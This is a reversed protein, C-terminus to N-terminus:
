QSVPMQSTATLPFTITNFTILHQANFSPVKIQYNYTIVVKTDKKSPVSTDSPFSVVVNSAALGLMPADNIAIQQIAAEQTSVGSGSGEGHVSAYRAADHAASCVTNYALVVSAMQTIAFTALLLVSVLLAMEVSSQGPQYRGERSEPSKPRM